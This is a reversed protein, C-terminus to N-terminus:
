ISKMIQGLRYPYGYMTKLGIWASLIAFLVLTTLIAKLYWKTTIPIYVDPVTAGILM